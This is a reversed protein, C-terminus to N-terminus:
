TNPGVRIAHPLKLAARRAAARGINGLHHSMRILKVPSERLALFCLPLAISSVAPVIANPNADKAAEMAGILLAQYLLAIFESEDPKEL